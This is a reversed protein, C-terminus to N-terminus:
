IGTYYGDQNCRAGCDAGAVLRGGFRLRSLLADDKAYLSFGFGRLSSAGPRCALYRPPSLLMDDNCGPNGSLIFNQVGFGAVAGIADFKRRGEGAAPYGESTEAGCGRRRVAIGIGLVEPRLQGCDLVGACVGAVRGGAQEDCAGAAYLNGFPGFRGSPARGEAM